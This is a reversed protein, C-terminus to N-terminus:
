LLLSVISFDAVQSALKLKSKLFLVQAMCPDLHIFSSDHVKTEVPAMATVQNEFDSHTPSHFTVVKDRVRQLQLGYLCM